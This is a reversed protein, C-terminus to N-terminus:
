TESRAPGEGFTDPLRYFSLVWATCNSCVDERRSKVYFQVLEERQRKMKWGSRGWFYGSTWSTCPTSSYVRLKPTPRDNQGMKDTWLSSCVSRISENHEVFQHEWRTKYTNKIMISLVSFLTHKSLFLSTGSEFSRCTKAENSLLWHQFCEPKQLKSPFM